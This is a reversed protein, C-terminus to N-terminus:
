QLIETNGAHCEELHSTSQSGNPDQSGRDGDNHVERGYRLTSDVFMDVASIRVDMYNRRYGVGALGIDRFRVERKPSVQSAKGTGFLHKLTSKPSKLEGVLTELNAAIPTLSRQSINKTMWLWIATTTSIPHKESSESINDM